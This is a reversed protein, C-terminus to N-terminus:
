FSWFKWFPKKANGNKTLIGIVREEGWEQEDPVKQWLINKVEISEDVTGTWAVEFGNKQLKDVIKNAVFLAENDDRTLSDFRLYLSRIEPDVVRGLDQSHYYCFGTAKIGLTNLREITQMCDEEGDSKTHGANHLCIIKELILEDFTKSLREFDTPHKWTLSEKQHLQFKASLVQRLWSEDFNDEQYFMDRISDFLQEEDEFGFKIDLEVQELVEQKIEETM